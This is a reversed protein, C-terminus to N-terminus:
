FTLVFKVKGLNIPSYYINAKLSEKIDEIISHLRLSHEVEDPRYDGFVIPRLGRGRIIKNLQDISDALKLETFGQQNVSKQYHMLM